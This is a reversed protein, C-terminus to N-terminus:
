LKIFFTALMMPSAIPHASGSGANANTITIGTGSSNTNQVSGNLNFATGSAVTNGGGNFVAAVSHVHGPDTLTNAHSHAPLQATTLTQSEAGGAAGLATAATGFYTATLRGAASNGMDDLAALARGRWDPLAINKNAAWDAAANAGRGSSVVLNADNIYLFTFLNQCDANARESGGSTSSGITRGNARVFGVINGTGYIPQIWGTQILTTPDVSPAAGGGSTPGLVLVFDAEIQVTGASNALRFKIYGDAFFLQPVNGGSDLTIPNPWPITLSIDQYASQPTTTGAAYFTLQGGDLPLHTTKDYRQTLSLAISGAM